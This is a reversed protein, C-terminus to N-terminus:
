WSFRGESKPIKKSKQGLVLMYIVTLLGVIIFFQSVGGLLDGIPSILLVLLGAVTFTAGNLIGFIRSRQEDVSQEHIVTQAPLQSFTAGFGSLIILFELFWFIPTNITINPIALTLIGLIILASAIIYGGVIAPFRAGRKKAIGGSLMAGFSLGLTAPIIVYFAGGTTGVGLKDQAFKFAVAAISFMGAQLLISHIISVAIVPTATIFNLTESIYKAVNRSLAFFTLTSKEKPIYVNAEYNNINKPLFTSCVGALIFLVAGIGFIKEMGGQHAGGLWLYLLSAFVAGVLTTVNITINFITNALVLDDNKVVNKLTATEATVYTFMLMALIFVLAYLFFLESKSVLLIILVAARLYNTYILIKRRDYFDGIIGAILSIAFAPINQIAFVAATAFVSNYIETVYILVAFDVISIELQTLLQTGWLNVFNRNKLLNLFSKM